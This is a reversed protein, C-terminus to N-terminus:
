NNDNERENELEEACEVCYIEDNNLWCSSGKPLEKGCYECVEDQQTIFQKM